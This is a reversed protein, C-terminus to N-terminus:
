QRNDFKKQLRGKVADWGDGADPDAELDELRQDIIERHWDPVPIAEPTAAIRDWLSQLYDIKEDVSLDDFGPPPLPVPKPMFYTWHFSANLIDRPGASEEVGRWEVVALVPPQVGGSGGGNAAAPLEAAAM